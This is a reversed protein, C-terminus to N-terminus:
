DDVDDSESDDDEDLETIEDSVADLAMAVMRTQNATLVLVSNVRGDRMTHLYLASKDPTVGVEIDAMGDEVTIVVKM